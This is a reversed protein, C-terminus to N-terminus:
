YVDVSMYVDHLATPLSSGVPTLAVTAIANTGNAILRVSGDFNSDEDSRSSFSVYLKATTGDVKVAPDSLTISMKDQVSTPYYGAVLAKALALWDEETINYFNNAGEGSDSITLPMADVRPLVDETGLMLFSTMPIGNDQDSPIESFYVAEADYQFTAVGNDYLTKGDETQPATPLPSPSPESSPEPTAPSSTDSVAPEPESESPQADQAQAPSPSVAPAQISSFFLKGACFLAGILVLVALVVCLIMKRM